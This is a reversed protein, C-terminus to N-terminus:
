AHSEENPDSATVTNGYGNIIQATQERENVAQRLTTQATDWDYFVGYEALTEDDLDRLHFPPIPNCNESAARTEYPIEVVILSTPRTLAFVPDGPQVALGVIPPHHSVWGVIYEGGALLTMGNISKEKQILRVRGGPYIHQPQGNVEAVLPDGENVPYLTTLFHDFHDARRVEVWVFSDLDLRYAQRIAEALAEDPALVEDASLELPEALEDPTYAQVDNLDYFLILCWNHAGSRDYAVARIRSNLQEALTNLARIYVARYVEAGDPVAGGDNFGYKSRMDEWYRM